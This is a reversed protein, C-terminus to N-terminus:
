SKNAAGGALYGSSFAWQLNYGGCPGDIDVVEGCFFLGNVIKSQMTKPCIEKLSVGGRTIMASKFGDHGTITLPTAALTKILKDRKAGDIKGFSLTHNIDLYECLSKAVSSPLITKLVESAPSTPTKAAAEKLTHRIQEENAGKLMNVYILVEECGDLLPTIERAFDLTVPGRIGTKTFILDGTARISKSKPLELRIQAKAITDATCNSVWSEKTRLPLMAPYPKNIKHGLAEALRYGDGTAGLKPYGMGGTAIIATKSKYLAGSVRVGSIAGGDQIIEDVTTNCVLEVGAMKLENELASVVTSSDHSVPFVRFGDPAHSEVGIQAFFDILAKHDFAALADSMFRGNKGFRSMFEENSLTNTLNCRGGGTAKLKAGVSSLKELLATKKGNKAAVIAAILGAAGAGIVIVDYINDSTHNQM